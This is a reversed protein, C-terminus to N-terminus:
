IRSGTLRHRRPPAAPQRSVAGCNEEKKLDLADQKAKIRGAVDSLLRRSSPWYDRHDSPVGNMPPFSGRYSNGISSNGAQKFSSELRDFDLQLFKLLHAAFDIEWQTDAINPGDPPLCYRNYIYIQEVEFKLQDLDRWLRKIEHEPRPPQVQEGTAQAAAPSRAAAVTVAAALLAPAVRLARGM